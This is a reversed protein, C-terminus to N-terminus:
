QSRVTNHDQMIRWAGARRVVVFTRIQRENEHRVGDPTVYTSVRSPVTVVAVQPTAFRVEISDPKDTVGKLFSAHVERLEALVAERGRTVGGGPNVHVWDDTTFASAGAFGHANFADYFAQVTRRVEAEAARGQAGLPTAVGLTAAAAIVRRWLRM